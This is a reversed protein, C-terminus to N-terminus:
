PFIFDEDTVPELSLNATFEPHQLNIFRILEDELYRDYDYPIPIRLLANTPTRRQIPRAPGLMSQIILTRLGRLGVPAKETQAAVNVTEYFMSDKNEDERREGTFKPHQSTSCFARKLLVTM